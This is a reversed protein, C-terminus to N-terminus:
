ITLMAPKIKFKKMFQMVILAFTQLVALTKLLYVYKTM